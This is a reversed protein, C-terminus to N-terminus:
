LILNLMDMNIFDNKEDQFKKINQIYIFEQYEM